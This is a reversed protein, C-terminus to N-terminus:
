SHITAVQFHSIYILLLRGKLLPWNIKYIKRRLLANQKYNLHLNKSIIDDYIIEYIVIIIHSAM